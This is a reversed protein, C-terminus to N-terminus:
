RTSQLRLRGVRVLKNHKDVPIGFAVVFIGTPGQAPCLLRHWDCDVPTHVRPHDCRILVKDNMCKRYLRDYLRGVESDFDTVYRGTMDFGNAAAIAEGYHCYQFRDIQPRYEVVIIHDLWPALKPLAMHMGDAFEGVSKVSLCYKTFNWILPHSLRVVNGREPYSIAVDGLGTFIAMTKSVNGPADFDEEMLSVAAIV